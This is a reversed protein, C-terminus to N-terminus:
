LKRNQRNHYFEVLENFEQTLYKNLYKEEFKHLTQM